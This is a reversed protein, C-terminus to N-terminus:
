SWDDSQTESDKKPSLVAQSIFRHEKGDWIVRVIGGTHVLASKSNNHLTRGLSHMVSDHTVILSPKGTRLGVQLAKMLPRRTRADFDNLSEDSGPFKADKDQRVKKAVDQWKKKLQGTADGVNFHALRQDIELPVNKRDALVIDASQRTRKSNDVYAHGLERDDLFEKKAKCVQAIGKKDLCADEPKYREHANDETQGHRLLYAVVVQGPKLNVDDM